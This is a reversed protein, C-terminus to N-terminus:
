AQPRKFILLLFVLLVIGGLIYLGIYNPTAATPTGITNTNYFWKFSRSDYVAQNRNNKGTQVTNAFGFISGVANAIASVPDAGGKAAGAASGAANEATSAGSGGVGFMGLIGQLPNAESEQPTNQNDPM